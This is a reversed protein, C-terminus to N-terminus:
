VGEHVPAVVSGTKPSPTMSAVYILFPRVTCAFMFIVITIGTLQGTNISSERVSNLTFTGGSQMVAQRGFGVGSITTIGDGITVDGAITVNDIVTFGKHFICDGVIRCSNIYGAGSTFDISGTQCAVISGASHREFKIGGTSSSNRMGVVEGYLTDTSSNGYHIGFGLPDDSYYIDNTGIIRAGNGEAHLADGETTWVSCGEFVCNDGTVKLCGGAHSTHGYFKIGKFVLARGTGSFLLGDGGKNIRAGMPASFVQDDDTQTLNRANYAIQAPPFFVNLGSDIANQIAGSDDTVANGTAGRKRVDAFGDDRLVLALTNIGVCQVINYTNPTVTSALVVDWLSGAGDNKTTRGALNLAAGNFIKITNTDDVADQLNDFPIVRGLNILTQNSVGVDIPQVISTGNNYEANLPVADAYFTVSGRSDVTAGTQTIPITGAPDSFINALGLSAGTTIDRHRIEYPANPIVNFPDDTKTGIILTYPSLAM